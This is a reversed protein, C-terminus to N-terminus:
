CPMPFFRRPDVHNPIAEVNDFGRRRLGKAFYHAVTVIRDARAFSELWERGPEDPFSGDVIRWTPDGRLLLVSPLGHRKAVDPVIAAMPEQSAIVVDPREAEILRPLAEEIGAHEARRYVRDYPVHCYEYLFYPVPYRSLRLGSLTGVFSADSAVTEPTIPALVRVDHGREQLAVTLQLLSPASGGRRPPYPGVFLLKLPPPPVM